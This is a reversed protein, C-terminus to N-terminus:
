HPWLSTGDQPLILDSYNSVDTYGDDLTTSGAWEQLQRPTISVPNAPLGNAAARLADVYPQGLMESTHHIYEAQETTIPDGSQETHVAAILQGQAVVLREHDFASFSAINTIYGAGSAHNTDEYLYSDKLQDLGKDIVKDVIGSGPFEALGIVGMALSQFTDLNDNYRQADADQQRASVFVEGNDASLVIGDINAIRQAWPPYMATDSELGVVVTQLDLIDRLRFIAQRSADDEMALSTFQAAQMAGISIYHGGSRAAPLNFAPSRAFDPLFELVMQGYAPALAHSADGPKTDLAANIVSAAADRALLPHAAVEYVTGSVILNRVSSDIVDWDPPHRGDRGFRNGTLWAVNDPNRLLANAADPTRAAADLLITGRDEWHTALLDFNPYGPSGVGRDVNVSGHLIDLGLQGAPQAFAASFQGYRFLLPFADDVTDDHVATAFLDDRWANSLTPSATALASDVDALADDIDFSPHGSTRQHDSWSSLSIARPLLATNDPGLSEYFATAYTSDFRRRGLLDTLRDLEAVLGAPVIHDDGRANLYLWAREAIQVETLPPTNYSNSEMLSYLTRRLEDAMEDVDETSMSNNLQDLVSSVQGALEQPTGTLADLALRYIDADPDTPHALRADVLADFLEVDSTHLWRRDRPMDAVFRDLQRLAFGFAAPRRDVREIASLESGIWGSYNGVWFSMSSPANNLAAVLTGYDAADAQAPALTPLTMSTYQELRDPDGKITM